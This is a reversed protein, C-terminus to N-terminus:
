PNRCGPIFAAALQLRHICVDHASAEGGAAEALLLPHLRCADFGRWRCSRDAGSSALRMGQQRAM